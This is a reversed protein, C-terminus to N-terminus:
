CLLIILCFLAVCIFLLASCVELESYRMGKLLLKSNSCNKSVGIEDDDDDGVLSLVFFSQQFQVIPNYYMTFFLFFFFSSFLIICLFSQGFHSSTDHISFSSSAATTSLSHRHPSVLSILYPLPKPYSFSITFQYLSLSTLSPKSLLLSHSSTAGIRVQRMWM